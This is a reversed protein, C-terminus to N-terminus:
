LSAVKSDCSESDGSERNLIASETGSLVSDKSQGLSGAINFISRDYYNM